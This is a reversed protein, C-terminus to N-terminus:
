ELRDYHRDVYWDTRINRGLKNLYSYNVRNIALCFQKGRNIDDPSLDSVTKRYVSDLIQNRKSLKDIKADIKDTSKSKSEKTRRSRELRQISKSNSAYREAIRYGIRARKARDRRVGWKQGKVGYHYLEGDPTLIYNTSM